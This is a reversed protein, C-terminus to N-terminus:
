SDTGLSDVPSIANGHVTVGLPIVADIFGPIGPLAVRIQVDARVDSGPALCPQSSCTLRVTADDQPDFGFDEIVVSSVAHARNLAVNTASTRSHGNELADVGGVVASRAADRAASEAAFAGAQILSLTVVLYLLPILLLLSLGIFEVIAAGDDPGSARRLRYAAAFESIRARGSAM